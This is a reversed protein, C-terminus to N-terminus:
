MHLGVLRQGGGAGDPVPGPGDCRKPFSSLMFFYCFYYYNRNWILSLCYVWLYRTLVISVHWMCIGRPPWHREELTASKVDSGPNWRTHCPSPCLSWCCRGTPSQTSRRCRGPSPSTWSPEESGSGSCPRLDPPATIASLATWPSWSDRPPQWCAASSLLRLLTQWHSLGGNNSQQTVSTLSLVVSLTEANLDLVPSSRQWINQQTQYKSFTCKLRQLERPFTVHRTLSHPLSDVFTVLVESYM